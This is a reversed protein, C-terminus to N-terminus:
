HRDIHNLVDGIIISIIFSFVAGVLLAIPMFPDIYGLQLRVIFQLCVSSLLGTLIASIVLRRLLLRIILSWIITLLLLFLFAM